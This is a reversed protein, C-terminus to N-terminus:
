VEVAGDFVFEAPGNLRVQGFLGDQDQFSVELRDGGQVQVSV